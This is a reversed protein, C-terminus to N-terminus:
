KVTMKNVVDYMQDWYQPPEAVLNKTFMDRNWYMVLPDVLFPLALVGDNTLFLEGEEIFTDKFTRQSYSDFPIAFLKNSNKYVSDDRLIVIDPGMGQALSEVFDADFTAEDKKIYSIKINKNGTLSSARYAAEFADPNITGWITLNAAGASPSAKSLAFIAVGVIICVGFIGLLFIKFTSLNDM